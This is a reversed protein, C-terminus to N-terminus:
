PNGRRGFRGASRSFWDRATRWCTNTLPRQTTLAARTVEYGLAMLQESQTFDWPLPRTGTRLEIRMVPVAHAAAFQLELQIQRFQMAALAKRLGPGLGAAEALGEFPDTLDLAVIETAGQLVAAEVPLSSILGGDVLIQGNRRV